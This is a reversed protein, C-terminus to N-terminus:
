IVACLWFGFNFAAHFGIAARLGIRMRVWGCVLGLGLTYAGQYRIFASFSEPLSFIMFYHSYAFLTTTLGFALATAQQPKLRRGFETFVGWLAGRYVLEELIPGIVLLFLVMEPNKFDFPIEILQVKAFSFIGFGAILTLLLILTDQIKIARIKWEFNKLIAWCLTTFMVEFAYIAYPNIADLSFLHFFEVAIFLCFLVGSLVWNM